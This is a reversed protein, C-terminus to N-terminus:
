ANRQEAAAIPLGPSFRRRPEAVRSLHPSSTSGTRRCLYRSPQSCEVVGGIGPCSSDDSRLRDHEDPLITAPPSPREKSRATLEFDSSIKARTDVRCVCERFSKPKLAQKKTAALSPLEPQLRSEPEPHFDPLM